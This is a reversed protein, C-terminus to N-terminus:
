EPATVPEVKYYLTGLQVGKNISAARITLTVEPEGPADHHVSYRTLGKVEHGDLTVRANGNTDTNICVDHQM